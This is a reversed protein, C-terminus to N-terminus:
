RIGTRRQRIPQSFQGTLTLHAGWLPGPTRRSQDGNPRLLCRMPIVRVLRRKAAAHIADREAFTM